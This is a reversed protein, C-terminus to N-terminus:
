PIPWDLCEFGVGIFYIFIETWIKFHWKSSTVKTLNSIKNLYVGARTLIIADNM